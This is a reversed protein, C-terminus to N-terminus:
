AGSGQAQGVELEQLVEDMFDRTNQKYSVALRIADNFLQPHRSPFHPTPEPAGPEAQRPGVAGRFGCSVAGRFGAPEGEACRRRELGLGM